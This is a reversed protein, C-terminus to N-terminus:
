LCQGSAEAEVHNSQVVVSKKEKKIRVRPHKSIEFLSSPPPPLFRHSLSVILQRGNTGPGSILGSVNHHVPLPGLRAVGLTQAIWYFWEFGTNIHLPYPFLILCKEPEVIFRCIDIGKLFYIHIIIEM